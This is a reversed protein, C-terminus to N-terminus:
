IKKKNQLRISIQEIYPIKRNRYILIQFLMCIVLLQIYWTNHVCLLPTLCYEHKSKKILRGWQESMCKYKLLWYIGCIHSGGWPIIININMKKFLFICEFLFLYLSMHHIWLSTVHVHLNKKKYDKHSVFIFVIHCNVTWIM